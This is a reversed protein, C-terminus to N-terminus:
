HTPTWRKELIEIIEHGNKLHQNFLRKIGPKRELVKQKLIISQSGMQEITRLVWELVEPNKHDLLKEFCQIFDFTIREGMRVKRSIIQRHSIGMVAILIDDDNHSKLTEIILPEWHHSDGYSHDVLCLIKNLTVGDHLAEKWSQALMELQDEDFKHRPRSGMKLQEITELFLLNINM